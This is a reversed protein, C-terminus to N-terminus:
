RWGAELFRVMSPIASKAYAWNHRGDGLELTARIGAARLEAAFRQSEGRVVRLHDQRGDLLLIHLGRAREVDIDPSNAIVTAPDGGFMGSPDDVHFYGAISVVQGFLDRHRLALNMAGYGGMSFGAIARHAADRRHSGEVKPIVVDTVFSEIEDSGDRANAWESDHHTGHNGDPAVLVFPAHREAFYRDLTAAIGADFLQKSSGPLGHLFYVVPLTSSDATAPRYVRVTRMRADTGTGRLHLVQVTGHEGVRKPSRAPVAAPVAAGAIVLALPVLLTRLRGSRRAHASTRV